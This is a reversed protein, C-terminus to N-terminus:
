GFLFNDARLNWITTAGLTLANDADFQIVVDSSVQRMLPTLEGFTDLTSADVLRVKDAESRRFDTIRDFGGARNFVFVDAGSGGTLADDGRGGDLTDAGTGGRLVDTNEGGELVDAENGGDLTDAGAGGLLTDTGSGGSLTDLGIGGLIRDDGGGGELRDDGGEGYLVDDGNGGLLRDGGEGGAIMDDGDGGDLTDAGMGGLLLDDGVRGRLVDNGTGGYLTDRGGAGDLTDNGGHGFFLDATAQGSLVNAADTGERETDKSGPTADRDDVIRFEGVRDTLLHEPLTGLNRWTALVPLAIQLAVPLIGVYGTAGDSVAIEVVVYRAGDGGNYYGYAAAYSNWDIGESRWMFESTGFSQTRTGVLAVDGKTTRTSIVLDSQAPDLIVSLAFPELEASSERYIVESSVNRVPATVNVLTNGIVQDYRPGVNGAAGGIASFADSVNVIRSNVVSMGDFGSALLFAHTKAGGLQARDAGVFLSDTFLYENAQYQGSVGVQVEWAKFREVLSIVDAGEGQRENTTFFGGRSAFVENDSFRRTAIDSADVRGSASRDLNAHYGEREAFTDEDADRAFRNTTHFGYGVSEASVAVNGTTEINRSMFGYAVGQHFMDNMTTRGDDDRLNVVSRTGSTNIVINDRWAGPENGDEAIIGGGKVGFVANSVVDLNSDHHVIGWGPSGWVANGEAVAAKSGDGTRHFHLAYRGEQNTIHEPDTPVKSGKADLVFEYVGPMGNRGETRAIQFDDVPRSKDTRGLEHFEANRVEVDANHMFMVHGRMAIDDPNESRIVVNRTYNAVYTALGEGQPADHDFRLPPEIHVTGDADIRTITVVEDETIWEGNVSRGLNTGAVVIKDGVQWSEPAGALRLATDGAMPVDAVKLFDQKAQGEIRVTGHTVLGRGFQGPDAVPDIPRGDDAAIVIETRVGEQVPNGPEGITLISGPATLFSDVVLKTDRTTSFHLEGYVGLTDIRADSRGDYTVSITRPILVDDFSEPVKSGSWTAPDFWSGSRVATVTGEGEKPFLALFKMHEAQLEPNDAHPTSTTHHDTTTADM